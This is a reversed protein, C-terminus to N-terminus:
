RVRLDYRGLAVLREPGQPRKERPVRSRRAVEIVHTPVDFPPGVFRVKGTLDASRDDHPQRARTRLRVDNSLADGHRTPDIRDEAVARGAPFATAGHRDGGGRLTDDLRVAAGPAQDVAGGRARAEELLGEGFVTHIAVRRHAEVPAIREAPMGLAEDRASVADFFRPLVLETV